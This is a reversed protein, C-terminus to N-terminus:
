LRDSRAACTERGHEAARRELEAQWQVATTGGRGGCRGCTLGLARGSLSPMPSHARDLPHRTCAGTPVALAAAPETGGCAACVGM